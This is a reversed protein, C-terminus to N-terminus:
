ALTLGLVLVLLLGILGLYFNLQGSQLPRLRTAIGRVLRVAPQFLLPGFIPAVDHEFSLKRVFYGGVDADRETDATPRYVFSYFTRMANSFTLTTTSARAPDPSLGGYWVPARRIARRKSGLVLLIPILALLPMVLILLSPSIFAFTATLPVLLAGDHMRAAVAAGVLSSSAQLIVHVERHVELRRIIRLILYPLLLGRFAATLIAVIYLEAYGGYYGVAGSLIAILWSQAAFVFLYHRLWRSGLMVFSLLLSGIALLSFLAAPLPALHAALM